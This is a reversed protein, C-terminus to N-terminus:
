RCELGIYRRYENGSRGFDDCFDFIAIEYEIGGDYEFM